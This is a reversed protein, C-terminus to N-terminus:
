DKKFYNPWQQKTVESREDFAFCTNLLAPKGSPAPFPDAKKIKIAERTQRSKEGYVTQFAVTAMSVLLERVHTCGNNKGIIKNVRNKWGSGIREGILDKIKFNAGTCIKYPGSITEASVDKIKMNIDLTLKVIMKHLPEGARLVTGDSKPIDYSKKDIITGEIEFFGDYRMYGNSYFNRSHLLHKKFHNKNEISMM